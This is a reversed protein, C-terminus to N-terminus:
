PQCVMFYISLSYSGILRVIRLALLSKRPQVTHKPSITRMLEERLTYRTESVQTACSGPSTHLWVATHVGMDMGLGHGIGM